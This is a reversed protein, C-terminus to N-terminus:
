PSSRPMWSTPRNRTVRGNWPMVSLTRSMLCYGVTVLALTGVAPLWYFWRIFPPFSVLMLLTYALRNQVAYHLWSRFKGFYYATQIASVLIAGIFGSPFGALGVLLLLAIITWIWWSLEKPLLMLKM